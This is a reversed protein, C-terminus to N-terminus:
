TADGAVRAGDVLIAARISFSWALYAAVLLSVYRQLVHLSRDLDLQEEPSSPRFLLAAALWYHWRKM